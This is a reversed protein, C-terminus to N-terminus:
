DARTVEGFQREFAERARRLLSETADESRGLERAIDRVSLQDLFRLVLVFRYMPPLAALVQHITTRSEAAHWEAGADQTQVERVLREQRGRERFGRRLHAALRHRAIGILWPLSDGRGDFSAPKRIVELFVEQTLDEALAPSGGRSLLYAYVRPASRAYWARFEVDDDIVARLDLTASGLRESM